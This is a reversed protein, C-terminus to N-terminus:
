GRRTLVIHGGPDLRAAFGATVLTTTEDEVILAPGCLRDGPALDARAYVPVGAVDGSAPDAVWAQGSPAAERAPPAARPTPPPLSPTSLRLTWGTAEVELGPITRGFQQAYQAEFRGVLEARVALAEAPVAVTVEHGQGRYRMDATWAELLPAESTARRIV